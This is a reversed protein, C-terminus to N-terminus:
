ILSSHHLALNGHYISTRAITSGHIKGLPSLNFLHFIIIIIIIIIIIFFFFNIEYIFKLKVFNHEVIKWLVLIM